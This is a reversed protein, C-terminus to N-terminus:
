EADQTERIARLVGGTKRPVARSPTEKPERVRNAKAARREEHAKRAAAKGLQNLLPHGRAPPVWSLDPLPQEPKTTGKSRPRQPESSESPLGLRALLENRPFSELKGM